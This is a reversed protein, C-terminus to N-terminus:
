REAEAPFEILHSGARYATADPLRRAALATGGRKPRPQNRLADFNSVANFDM